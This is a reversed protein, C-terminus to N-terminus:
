KHRYKNKATSLISGMDKFMTPLHEIVQNYIFFEKLSARITFSTQTGGYERMAGGGAGNV